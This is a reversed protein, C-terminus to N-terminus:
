KKNTEKMRRMERLLEGNRKELMERRKREFELQKVIENIREESHDESKTSDLVKKSQSNIMGTTNPRVEEREFKELRERGEDPEYSSRLAAINEQVKMESQRLQQILFAIKDEYEKAQKELKKTMDNRTRHLVMVIQEFENNKDDYQLQLSSM